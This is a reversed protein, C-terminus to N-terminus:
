SSVSSLGTLGSESPEAESLLSLLCPLRLGPLTWLDAEALFAPTILVLLSGM